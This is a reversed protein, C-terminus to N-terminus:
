YYTSDCMAIVLRRGYEDYLRQYESTGKEIGYLNCFSNCFDEIVDRYDAGMFLALMSIM